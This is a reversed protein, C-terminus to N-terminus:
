RALILNLAEYASEPNDIEEGKVGLDRWAITSYELEILVSEDIGYFNAAKRINDRAWFHGQLKYHKYISKVMQAVLCTNSNCFAYVEPNFIKNKFYLLRNRKSMKILQKM